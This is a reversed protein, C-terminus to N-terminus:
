SASEEAKMIKELNDLLFKKGKETFLVMEYENGQFSRKELEIGYDKSKANVTTRTKGNQGPLETLIGMKKLRKNLEVGTLKISRNNDIVQNVCRAFENIGVKGPPLEVRNKEEPTIAFGPPRHGPQFGGEALKQLIDKTYFLCRVIKPDQLFSEQVISEGTLPNMGNAIKNLVEGAKLLKEKEPNMGIGGNEL